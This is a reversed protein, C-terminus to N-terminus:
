IKEGQKNLLQYLSLMATYTALIIKRGPEASFLRVAAALNPEVAGVVTGDYSLRLAMDAARTGSTIDVKRRGLPQFNVDWLWSVDRGDAINDNIAIMFRGGASGYSALAQTFSAPNKVLVLEVEGGALRYREGRGFALPVEALQSVLNEAPVDPLLHRCLALAAAGNLYNHQGSTKLEAQYLRGGIRFKVTQGDFDALEVEAKASTKTKASRKVAGLEFDSPFYKALKSGASFYVVALSKALVGATASLLPDGANVVVGETAQKLTDSIYRAITDVEGFRDLQDRSVNLAAAWRPHVAQSLLRATAEDVELVAIDFDLNGRWSANRALSSAIGRVLNSGTSNTLVRKGNARLIEVVMKTTTTKGNTGTIIVVGEPLKALLSPVYGPLLREVVLGPLAQGGGRRFVLGLRVSKGIFTGLWDRM